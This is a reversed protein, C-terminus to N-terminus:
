LVKIQWIDVVLHSCSPQSGEWYSLNVLLTVVIGEVETAVKVESMNVIGEVYSEQFWLALVVLLNKRLTM